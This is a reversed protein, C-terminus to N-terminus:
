TLATTLAPRLCIFVSHLLANQITESWLVCKTGSKSHCILHANGLYIYIETKSEDLHSAAGKEALVFIDGPEYFEAKLDTAHYKNSLFDDLYVHYGFTNRTVRMRDAAAFEDGVTKKLLFMARDSNEPMDLDFIGDTLKQATDPLGLSRGFAKQYFTEAFALDEFGQGSQMSKALETLAKISDESVRSAGVKFTEGRTVIGAVKGEPFTVDEGVAADIIVDFSVKAEAGHPIDLTWVIDKGIVQGGASVSQPVLSAGDPVTEIVTIGQYDATHRSQVTETVTIKEGHLLHNSCYLGGIDKRTCLYPYLARSLAKETLITKETVSKCQLPRIVFSTRMSPEGNEDDAAFSWNPVAYAETSVGDATWLLGRSQKVTDTRLVLEELPQLTIGGNPEWRNVGDEKMIGGGVPWCHLCYKTGDGFCDGLYLMVHGAAAQKEGYLIDGPQLQATMDALFRERDHYRQEYPLGSRGEDAYSYQMVIMDLYDRSTDFGLQWGMAVSPLEMGFADYYVDSCFSRCQAYYMRDPTAAEPSTGQTDLFSGARKMCTLTTTMNYQCDPNHYFYALATQVVIQRLLGGDCEALPKGIRADEIHPLVPPEAPLQPATQPAAGCGTLLLLASLALSLVSHRKM